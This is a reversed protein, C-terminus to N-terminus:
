ADHAGELSWAARANGVRKLEGRGGGQEINGRPLVPGIQEPWPVRM